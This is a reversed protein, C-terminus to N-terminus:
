CTYKKGVLIEGTRVNEINVKTYLGEGGDVQRQALTEADTENQLSNEAAIVEQLLVHRNAKLIQIVESTFETNQKVLIKGTKPDIIDNASFLAESVRWSM